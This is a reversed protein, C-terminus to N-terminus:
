GHHLLFEYGEKAIEMPVTHTGNFEHYVVDYGSQQLRSVISRSSGASLVQDNVGHSVYIKPKGVYSPPLM